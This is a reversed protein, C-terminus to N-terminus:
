IRIARPWGQGLTCILTKVKSLSEKYIRLEPRSAIWHSHTVPTSHIKQMSTPDRWTLPLKEKWPDRVNLDRTHSRRDYTRPTFRRTIELRSFPFFFLFGLHQRWRTNSQIHTLQLRTVKKYVRLSGLASVEPAKGKRTDYTVSGMHCWKRRDELGILTAWLTSTYKRSMIGLVREM